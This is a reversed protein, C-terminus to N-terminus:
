TTEKFANIAIPGITTITWLMNHGCITEELQYPLPQMGYNKAKDKHVKGKEWTILQEQAKTAVSQLALKMSMLGTITRNEGKLIPNPALSTHTPALCVDFYYGDAESSVRLAYFLGESKIGSSYSKWVHRAMNTMLEAFVFALITCLKPITPSNNKGSLQKPCSISPGEYLINIPPSHSSLKSLCEAIGSDVSSNNEYIDDNSSSLHILPGILDEADSWSFNNTFLGKDRIVRWESEDVLIRIIQNLAEVQWLREVKVSNTQNKSELELQQVIFNLDQTEIPIRSYSALRNVLSHASYLALSRASKDSITKDALTKEITMAPRKGDHGFSTLMLSFTDSRTEEATFKKTKWELEITHVAQFAKDVEVTILDLLMTGFMRDTFFMVNGPINSDHMEPVLSTPSLSIWTKPLVEGSKIFDEALSCIRTIRNMYDAPLIALPNKDFGEKLEVENSFVSIGNPATDCNWREKFDWLALLSREVRDDASTNADIDCDICRQLFIFDLYISAISKKVKVIKDDEGQAECYVSDTLTNIYEGAQKNKFADNPILIMVHQDEIANRNSNDKWLYINSVAIADEMSSSLVGRHPPHKTKDKLALKSKGTLSSCNNYCSPSHQHEYDPRAYTISISKPPKTNNKHNLWQFLSPPKIEKFLDTEPLLTNLNGLLTNFAIASWKKDDSEIQKDINGNYQKSPNTHICIYQEDIKPLYRTTTPLVSSNVSFWFALNEPPDMKVFRFYNRILIACEKSLNLFIGPTENNNEENRIFIKNYEEYM